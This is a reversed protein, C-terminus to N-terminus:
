FEGYENAPYVFVLQGNEGRVCQNIDVDDWKRLKSPVWEERILVTVNHSWKTGDFVDVELPIMKM